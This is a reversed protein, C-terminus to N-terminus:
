EDENVEVMIGCSPCYNLELEMYPNDITVSFSNSDKDYTPDLENM